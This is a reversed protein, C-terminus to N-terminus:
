NSDTRDSRGASVATVAAVSVSFGFCYSLASSEGWVKIRQDRQLVAHEQFIKM